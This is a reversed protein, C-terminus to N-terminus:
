LLLYLKGYGVPEVAMIRDEVPEARHLLPEAMSFTINRLVEGGLQQEIRSVELELSEIDNAVREM